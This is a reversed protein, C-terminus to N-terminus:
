PANPDGYLAQLDPPPTDIADFPVGLRPGLEGLAEGFLGADVLVQAAWRDAVEAQEEAFGAPDRGVVAAIAPAAWEQRAVRSAHVRAILGGVKRAFAEIAEPTGRKGKFRSTRVTKQGGYEAKIQCPLGMWSTTGWLPAADPRAWVARSMDRVRDQVSDFAIGPLYWGGLGSDALEKLELVVDDHPDDTPGRVLLLVRVRPWSAVGSGYERAADILEFFAAPPPAILTERYKRIAEPLAARADAPLEGLWQTPEEPDLIGRKLHRKGGEVVTLDSLESQAVFDRNGRGFLDKLIEDRGPGDVRERPAGKALAQIAEAYGQAAARAIERAAAATKKQVEADDPNALHAALAMGTCLRRVDWLYPAMDAGDFDNPELALSGDAARLLGFNEPHPDGVSPALPGDLAFASPGFADARFDHLSLPVIGRFFSYRDAAMRAYKGAVLEPRARILPEDARALVSTIEATRPDVAGDSCGVLLACALSASLLAKV